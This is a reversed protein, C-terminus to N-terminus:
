EGCTAHAPVLPCVAHRQMAHVHPVSSALYQECGHGGSFRELSQEDGPSLQLCNCSVDGLGEASGGLFIAIVVLPGLCLAAWQILAGVGWYCSLEALPLPLSAVALWLRLPMGQVLQAGRAM